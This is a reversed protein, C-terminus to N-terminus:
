PAITMTHRWHTCVRFPLQRLCFGDSITSIHFHPILNKTKEGFVFTNRIHWFAGIITALHGGFFGFLFSEGANSHKVRPVRHSSHLRCNCPKESRMSLTFLSPWRCRGNGVLRAVRHRKGIRILFSLFFFHLFFQGASLFHCSMTQASVCISANACM